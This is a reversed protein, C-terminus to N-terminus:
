KGKGQIMVKVTKLIIDVDSNLNVNRLYLLDYRTRSCMQDVNEAYGYHIQGISTLGPKLSLLKKYNPSREVIQEIFHRREPRPGVISMDGKLVNWFQPLEDLRTKRIILGWKTIRPDNDKSLQPGLAEANVYMSRFKVIHFPKENRGIREQKYFAPGRSSTKTIIYLMVFIPAGLTIVCLSFGIDFGRKLVRIKTSIEDDPKINLVPINNYNVLQAHSNNLTLDSVIKISIGNEHGLTIIRDLLDISLRKYCIFIEDPQEVSISRELKTLLSENVEEEPIINTIDYGYEPHQSFSRSLRGAMQRDGVIIVQRHNYGKKRYFDLGILLISRAITILVAFLIYGIAVERRSVDAIKFFYIVGFVFLLHYTLTTLFRYIIDKFILPRQNAFNKNLFSIAVWALNVIIAFISSQDRFHHTNFVLYNAASLAINLLVLDVIFVIAPLHKSYRIAM